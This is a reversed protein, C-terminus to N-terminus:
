LTGKKQSYDENKGFYGQAGGDNSELSTICKDSTRKMELDENKLEIIASNMTKEVTTMATNHEKTIKAIKAKLSVIESSMQTQSEVFEKSIKEVSQKIKRAKVTNFDTLSMKKKENELEEYLNFFTIELKLKYMNELKLVSNSAFHSRDKEHCSDFVGQKVGNIEFHENGSIEKKIDIRTDLMEVQNSPLILDDIDVKEEFEIPELKIFNSQLDM